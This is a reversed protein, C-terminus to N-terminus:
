YHITKNGLTFTCPVIGLPVLSSGTALRVATRYLSRIPPLKLKQYFGESICSRSAGTDVLANCVLDGVKTPFTTGKSTRIVVQTICESRHKEKCNFCYSDLEM